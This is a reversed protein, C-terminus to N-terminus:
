KPLSPHSKNSNFIQSNTILFSILIIFYINVKREIKIVKNSTELQLCLFSKNSM